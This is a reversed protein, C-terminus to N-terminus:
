KGDEDEDEDGDDDHKGDKHSKMAALMAAGKGMGGDVKKKMDDKCCDPLTM